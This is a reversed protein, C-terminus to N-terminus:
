VSGKLLQQIWTLAQGSYISDRDVPLLRWGQLLSEAAKRIDSRAMKKVRHVSGQVEVVLRADRFLVDARHKSGVLYCCDYEAQLGAGELQRQLETELESRGVPAKAKMRPSVAAPTAATGAVRCRTEKLLRALAKEDALRM